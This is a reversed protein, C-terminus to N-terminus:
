EVAGLRADGCGTFRQPKHKKEQGKRTPPSAWLYERHLRGIRKPTVGSPYHRFTRSCSACKYREAIAEQLTHDRVPKRVTGHRHLYPEHCYRCCRPRNNPRVNVDPVVLRIKM